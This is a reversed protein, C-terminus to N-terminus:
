HMSSLRAALRVTAAELLEPARRMAEETTMGPLACAEATAVGAARWEAPALGVLGALVAVRAGTASARRLVGSVVKGQLSQSDFRGEGTIVWDAAALKPTLAVLDAVTEVGSTLRAGLFAVAGAGFGGAAGAGPLSAVDVGVDDRLRRALVALGRDLEEVLAPTAGKQPGYVAAAGRPGCLPNDVDCLAQVPVSLRGGPPPVIRDLRLLAGGGPPLEAGAADLFRWGLATAAGTGGDNTASGGLTLVLRAAGRRLAAALLEGTGRTTTLRPDRRATPVLTLGSAQAMEVVATRTAPLWGYRAQVRQGPLPGAVDSLDVFSGACAGVVAEATGEGGDAMPVCCLATGPLAKALAESVLRCATAAALSGKFSDLAILVNM